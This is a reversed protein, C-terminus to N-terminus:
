IVYEHDYLQVDKGMQKIFLDILDLDDFKEAAYQLPSIMNQEDIDHNKQSITMDINSRALKITKKLDLYNIGEDSLSFELADSDM